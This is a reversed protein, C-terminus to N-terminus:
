PSKTQELVIRIGSLNSAFELGVKPGHLWIIVGKDNKPSVGGGGAVLAGGTGAATYSGAFDGLQHLYSARGVLRSVSAGVTTGASLGYVTFRYDRGDFSLVGRGAGAGAILGAKTFTVRVYGAKAVSADTVSALAFLVLLGLRYRRM